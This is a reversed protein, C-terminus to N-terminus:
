KKDQRNEKKAQFLFRDVREAVQKGYSIPQEGEPINEEQLGLLGGHPATQIVQFDLASFSHSGQRYKQYVDQRVYDDYEGQIYLVPVDAELLPSLSPELQFSDGMVSAMREKNSIAYFWDPTYEKAAHLFSQKFSLPAALLVLAPYDRPNAKLHQAANKQTPALYRAALKASLVGGMSHGALVQRSYPVQDFAPLANTDRQSDKKGALLQSLSDLDSAFFDELAQYSFGRDSVSVGDQNILGYQYTLLGYGKDLIERIFPRYHRIRASAGLSLIIVPKDSQAPAIYAVPIKTNPLASAMQFYVADTFESLGQRPADMYDAPSENQYVPLSVAQIQSRLAEGGRLWRLFFLTTFRFSVDKPLERKPIVAPQGSAPLTKDPVPQLVLLPYHANLNANPLHEASLAYVSHIEPSIGPPPSTNEIFAQPTFALM